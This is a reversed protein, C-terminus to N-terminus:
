QNIYYYQENLAAHEQQQDAVTPESEQLQQQQQQQPLTNVATTSAAAASTSPVTNTVGGGGEEEGEEDSSDQVQAYKKIIPLSYRLVTTLTPGALRVLTKKRRMQDEERLLRKVNRKVPLLTTQIIKRQAVAIKDNTVCNSFCERIGDCAEHTLYRVASPLHKAPTKKLQRLVPYLRKLTDRRM